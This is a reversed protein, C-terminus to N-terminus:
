ILSHYVGAVAAAIKQHHLDRLEQSQEIQVGNGARTIRNVINRLDQGSLADAKATADEGWEEARRVDAGQPLVRAIADVMQQRFSVNAGGGVGIGPRGWGHFAVAHDFRKNVDTAFLEALRPFSATSLETSTIHWATHAGGGKKWGRCVWQRVPKQAALLATYVHVAQEDTHSEIDGGHPALIALGSGEGASSEILAAEPRTGKPPLSTLFTPSLTASFDAITARVIIGLCGGNAQQGLRAMGEVGIRVVGLGDGRRHPGVITFLAFRDRDRRLLIQRGEGLTNLMASDVTCHERRPASGNLEPHEKDLQVLVDTAM